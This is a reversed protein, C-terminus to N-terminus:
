RKKYLSPVLVEQPDYKPHQNASEQGDLKIFDYAVFYDGVTDHYDLTFGIGEVLEAFRRPHPVRSRVEVIKLLRKPKLIRFAEYLCKIYDTSMLSLSFICIDVSKKELPVHAINAVTVYENMAHLDFSHVTYGKPCLAQAVQADGCGMDAIVWSSPIYGPMSKAKNAVFRGRRDELLAQLIVDYPKIPWQQIQQRYGNHYDAYTSPDRLLEAVSSIPSNYIQENLLRFTSASLKTRFHELVSDDDRVRRIARRQAASSAGSPRPTPEGNEGKGGTPNPAYKPIHKAKKYEREEHKNKFPIGRRDNASDRSACGSSHVVVPGYLAGAKKSVKAASSTETRNKSQPPEKKSYKDTATRGKKRPDGFIGGRSM